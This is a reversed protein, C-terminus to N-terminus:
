ILTLVLSMHDTVLLSVCGYFMLTAVLFPSCFESRCQVLDRLFLDTDFFGHLPHDVKFYLSLVSAAFEDTIPISTWFEIRLGKLREDPWATTKLAGVEWSECVDDPPPTPMEGNSSDRIMNGALPPISPKTAFLANISITSIDIGSSHLTPYTNPFCASLDLGFDIEFRSSPTSPILARDQPISPRYRKNLGSEVEDVVVNPNGFSRMQRVLDLVIEDPASALHNM